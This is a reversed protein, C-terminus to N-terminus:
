SLIGKSLLLSVACVDVNGRPVRKSLVFAAQWPAKYKSPFHCCDVSRLISNCSFQARRALFPSWQLFKSAVFAQFISQRTTTLKASVLSRTKGPSLWLLLGLSCCLHPSVPMRLAPMISIQTSVTICSSPVWLFHRSARSDSVRYGHFSKRACGITGTCVAAPLCLVIVVFAVLLFMPKINCRQTSFAMRKSM